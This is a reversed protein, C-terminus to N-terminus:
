DFMALGVEIARVIPQSFVGLVVNLAIFSIVAIRFNWSSANPKGEIVSAPGSASGAAPGSGSATGQEAPSYLTIVLRLFYVANLM